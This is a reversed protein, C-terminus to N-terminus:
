RPSPGHRRAPDSRASTRTSASCRGATTSRGRADGDSTGDLAGSSAAAARVVTDEGIRWTLGSGTPAALVLTGLVGPRHEGPARRARGPRLHPRDAHRHEAAGLHRTHGPRRAGM